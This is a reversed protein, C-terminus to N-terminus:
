LLVDTMNGDKDPVVLDVVRCGYSAIDAYSGDTAEMRYLFSVDDYKGPNAPSKFVTKTISM